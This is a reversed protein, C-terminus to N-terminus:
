SLKRSFAIRQKEKISGPIYYKKTWSDDPKLYSSDKEKTGVPKKQKKVIYRFYFHNFIRFFEGLYIDAVRKNGQIVLTNEDNATTSNDSFNASGTIVTPNESLADILMFKTHIYRVHFNYDTLIEKTWRYIPEDLHSGVSIIVDPDQSIVNFNNAEKELLVYRLYLKDKALIEALKSNVGFAATLCVSELGEDM